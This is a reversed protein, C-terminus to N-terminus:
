LGSDSAESLCHRQAVTLSTMALFIHQLLQQAM